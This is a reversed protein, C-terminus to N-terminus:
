FPASFNWTFRYEVQQGRFRHYAKQRNSGRQPLHLLSLSEVNGPFRDHREHFRLLGVSQLLAQSQGTKITWRTKAGHGAIRPCDKCIPINLPGRDEFVRWWGISLKMEPNMTRITQLFFFGSDFRHRSHMIESQRSPTMRAANLNSIVLRSVDPM